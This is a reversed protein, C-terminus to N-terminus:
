QPLRRITVEVKTDAPPTVEPNLTVGGYNGLGIGQRHQIISEPDHVFSILSGSLAAKYRGDPLFASGTYVWEQTAVPKGGELFLEAANIDVTKDGNQWSLRVDVPDGQTPEPDFHYRPLKAKQNDLGILICALNFEFADTELELISEYRKYGNQTVALFEIPPATRIVVGPVKFIQKGKDIEIAGIRYRQDGLDQVVPQPNQQPSAPEAPLPPSGSPRPPPGTPSPPSPPGAPSPPSPPPPPDAAAALGPSCFLSISLILTLVYWM